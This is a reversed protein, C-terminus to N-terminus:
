PADEPTAGDSWFVVTEEPPPAQEPGAEVTDTNHTWDPKNKLYVGVYQHSDVSEIDM